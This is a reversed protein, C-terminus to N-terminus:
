AALRIEAVTAPVTPPGYRLPSEQRVEVKALVDALLLHDLIAAAACRSEEHDRGRGRSRRKGRGRHRTVRRGNHVGAGNNGLIM